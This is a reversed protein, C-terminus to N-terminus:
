QCSTLGQIWQTVLAVGHADVTHSGLPPMAASDRRNMRNVLLSNEPSGPAILRANVGLGLDGSQPSVDCANTAMLTASYRLDM